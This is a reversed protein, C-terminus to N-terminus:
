VLVSMGWSRAMGHTAHAAQTMLGVTYEMTAAFGTSCEFNPGLISTVWMPKFAVSTTM